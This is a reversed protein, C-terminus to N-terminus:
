KDLKPHPLHEIDEKKTWGGLLHLHLHDIVQGGERGVNFVLKYGKLGLKAALDKTAYILDALIEKHNGALHAISQIHEKPVVLYHVPASPRIDKFAMLKGNELVLDAPIEKKAIKCFVCDM